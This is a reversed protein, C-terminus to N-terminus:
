YVLNSSIDHTCDDFTRACGCYWEVRLISAISTRGLRLHAGNQSTAVQQETPVVALLKERIEDLDSEVNVDVQVVLERSPVNM